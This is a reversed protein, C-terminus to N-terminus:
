HADVNDQLKSQFQDFADFLEQESLVGDDGAQANASLEALGAQLEPLTVAGDGDADFDPLLQEAIYKTTMQRISLPTYGKAKGALQAEISLRRREMFDVANIPSHAFRDIRSKDGLAAAAAVDNAYEEKIAANVANADAMLGDTVFIEGCIRECERRYMGRWVDYHMLRDILRNKGSHPRTISLDILQEQNGEVPISGFIIDLDWPIFIFKNTSPDLYLFYNHGHSIFGDISALAVNGAIFRAFQELDLYDGIKSRFEQDDAHEIIRTLEILRQWEEETGDQKANYLARYQELNGDFYPLGRIGEPKLLLGDSRKFHRKLFRKDVQEVVTYLGINVRDYKGAVTLKVEAFTTRSAPVGLRQFLLYALAEHNFEPDNVGNHLNIKKLGEVDLTADYRNVDIKLPLKITGLSSAYSGNGKYRVAVRPYKKADVILEAPVHNFVFGADGIGADPHDHPLRYKEIMNAGDGSASPQHPLKDYDDQSFTLEVQHVKTMEFFQQSPDDHGQVTIPHATMVAILLCRFFRAHM